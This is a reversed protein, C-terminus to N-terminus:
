RTQLGVLVFLGDAIDPEGMDAVRMEFALVVSLMVGEEPLGRDHFIQIPCHMEGNQHM